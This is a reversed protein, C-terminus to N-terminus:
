STASGNSSESPLRRGRELPAHSQDDRWRPDGIAALAEIDKVSGTDVFLKMLAEAPRVSGPGVSRDIRVMM